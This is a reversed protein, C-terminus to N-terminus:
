SIVYHKKLFSLFLQPFQSQVTIPLILRIMLSIPLSLKPWKGSPLFYQFLPILTNAHTKLFTMNINNVDCAHSVNVSGFINTFDSLSIESFSFQQSANSSVTQLLLPSTIKSSLGQVSAIFYENFSNAIKEHDTLLTRNITIQISTSNKNKNEGTISKITQWLSQQGGHGGQVGGLGSNPRSVAQAEARKAQLYKVAAVPTLCFGPLM